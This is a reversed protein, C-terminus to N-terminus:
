LIQVNSLIQMVRYDTCIWRDLPSLVPEENTIRIRYLSEAHYPNEIYIVWEDFNLSSKTLIYGSLNGVIRGAQGGNFIRALNQKVFYGLSLEEDSSDVTLAGYDFDLFYYVYDLHTSFKLNRYVEYGRTYYSTDGDLSSYGLSKELSPFASLDNKVESITITSTVFLSDYEPVNVARTYYGEAVRKFGDDPLYMVLNGCRVRGGEGTAEPIERPSLVAHNPSQIYQLLKERQFKEIKKMRFGFYYTCYSAFFLGVALVCCAASILFAKIRKKRGIRRFRSKEDTKPEPPPVAVVAKLQKEKESCAACRLLHLKVFEATDEQLLDDTYLPLLDEIIRCENM